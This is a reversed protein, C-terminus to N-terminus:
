LAQAFITTSPSNKDSNQSNPFSTLNFNVRREAGGWGQGLSTEGMKQSRATGSREPAYKLHM